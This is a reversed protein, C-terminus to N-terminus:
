EKVEWNEVEWNKVRLGEIRLREVEWRKQFRWMVFVVVCVLLVLYKFRLWSVSFYVGYQSLLDSIKYIYQICIREIWLLRERWLLGYLCVSIFGYIMVFPVLPLVFLNGIVGLINIKGMFFIIIPFIGISAWISPKIYSKYVYKVFVHLRASTSFPAIIGGGRLGGGEVEGSKLEGSEVEWGEGEGNKEFYIIGILASYSLLFGTDYALFYPNIILMIICSISLLRRINVERWRFIAIMSMAGMLVARFVSSDLWCILSYGVITFLIVGVRIYFPIFFLICQLFVVIMLINGGSVAILHVLGSNIFRQYDSEPIQSKDGILMGLLLGSIKNKGYSAIVMEQIGRKMQKIWGISSLVAGTSINIKWSKVEWYRWGELDLLLSNDEYITGKWWKMKMWKSFDFSGSLLPIALIWSSIRRYSFWDKRMNEQTRGVIWLLDGISYAKKSYLLYDEGQYSFIYKWQNSIDVIVGTWVISSNKLVSSGRSLPPFSHSNLFGYYRIEKVVFSSMALLFSLLIMWIMKTSLLKKKSVYQYLMLFLSVLLLSISAILINEFLTFILTFVLFLTLFM